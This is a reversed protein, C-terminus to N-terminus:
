SSNGGQLQGLLLVDTRHVAPSGQLSCLIPFAVNPLGGNGWIRALVLVTLNNGVLGSFAGGAVMCFYRRFGKKREWVNRLQLGEELPDLKAGKHECCAVVISGCLSNAWLLLM